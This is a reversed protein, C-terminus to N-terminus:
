LSTGSYEWYQQTTLWGHMLSSAITMSKLRCGRTWIPFCFSGQWFHTSHLHSSQKRLRNTCLNVATAWVSGFLLHRFSLGSIGHQLLDLVYRWFVNCSTVGCSSTEHWIYCTVDPFLNFQIICMLTQM